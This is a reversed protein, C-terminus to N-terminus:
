RSRIPEIDGGTLKTLLELLGQPQIPEPLLEFEYSRAKALLLPETVWTGSGGPFLMVRCAPMLARVVVAAFVGNLDGHYAPVICLIAVDPNTSLVLELGSVGSYATKADVNCQPLIAKGFADAIAKEHHAIVVKLKRPM